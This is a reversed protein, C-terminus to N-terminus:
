ARPTIATANVAHLPERNVTLEYVAAPRYRVGQTFAGPIPKVLERAALKRRFSSKDLREGLVAECLSQLETLTFQRPVLGPLFELATFEARTLAAAHAILRQHDFAIQDDRLPHDVPVWRFGKVRKGGEIPLSDSQILSRYVISVGWESPGRPDRGSAGVACLQRLSPPIVGLRERSVREACADLTPDRDVRVVGGPLAWRDKYPAQERRILLTCLQSDILTQLAIEVRVLPMPYIPM